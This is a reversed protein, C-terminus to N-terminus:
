VANEQKMFYSFTDSNEKDYKCDQLGLSIFMLETTLTTNGCRLRTPIIVTPMHYDAITKTPTQM